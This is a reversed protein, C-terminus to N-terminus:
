RRGEKQDHTQLWRVLKEPYERGLRDYRAKLCAPCRYQFGEATIPQHCDLCTGPDPPHGNTETALSGPTVRGPASQQHRPENVNMFPTLTTREVALPEPEGQGPTNASSQRQRYAKMQCTRSCYRAPQGRGSWTFLQGCVECVANEADPLWTHHKEDEGAPTHEGNKADRRWTHHKGAEGTSGHEGNKADHHPTHHKGDTKTEGVIPANTPSVFGDGDSDGDGGSALSWRYPDGRKGTGTRTVRGDAELESLRRSATGHPLKAAEALEGTTATGLEALVAVLQERQAEASYAVPSGLVEYQGDGNWRIVVEFPEYRSYVTLLRRLDQLDDVVYRRVEVIIDAFGAIAGSGRGATAQLGDSKRPHRLFLVACGATAITQLPLLATVTESADNEDRVPWLNPLSDFVVLDYGHETVLKTIYATFAHWEAHNPRKPFPRSIVHVHDGLALAERRELWKTRPEESIVLAKGPRVVRGALEGGHELRQLLAAVLTSKGSKWFGVLDTLHGKALLGDWVWETTTTDTDLESIPVPLWSDPVSNTEGVGSGITPSFFEGGNSVVLTPNAPWKSTSKAIEVLERDPLPEECRRNMQQLVTLIEDPELQGVGRLWGAVRVMTNHRRGVPITTKLAEALSPEQLPEQQHGNESPWPLASPELRLAAEPQYSLWQYDGVADPKYAKSPPAYVLSGSGKIDGWHHKTTRVPQQSLCYVHLGDRQSQAVLGRRWGPHTTDLWREAEARHQHEIDLVWWYGGGPAQHGCVIAIADAKQWPWAEIEEPEPLRQQFPQWLILPRGRYAPIAPLGLVQYQQAAQRLIHATITMIGEM